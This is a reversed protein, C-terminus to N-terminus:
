KAEAKEKKEHKAKHEKKEHTKSHTEKKVESKAEAPKMEEAFVSLSIAFLGTMVLAILKKM